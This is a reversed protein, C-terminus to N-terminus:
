QNYMITFHGYVDIYHFKGKWKEQAADDFPFILIDNKDVDTIEDVVLLDIDRMMFQLIGAYSPYTDYKYVIDADEKEEYLWAIKESLCYDRYAARKYVQLLNRDAWVALVIEMGLLVPLIERRKEKSRAFLMVTIVGFQLVTGFLYAETYFTMVDFDDARYLYSIGVVFCEQFLVTGARMIQKVILIVIFLHMVAIVGSAVWIIKARQNWLTILGAMMVFPLILESYRGYTYDSVAGMNMLYVSAIMIQAIVGMLIYASFKRKVLDEKKSFFMKLLGYIGWYFLGYTSLGLYWIKGLIGIFFDYAGATTFIYKIKEIQGSYDNGRVLEGNVGGYVCEYSWEKIALSLLLLMGITGVVLIIHHKRGQGSLMHFILVTIGSLLIGITRMHVAYAYMMTLLLLLLAGPRNNKLYQYFLAGSLIYLMTLVNETMTMQAYFLFGPFFITIASFLVINQKRDSWLRGAIWMLCFFSCILMGFNISVAARYATVADKCLMFVPVLILSYGYSFYMGLSTIDSWDYGAMAAAYSWYTYEDPFMVFGYANSVSYGAFCLLLVLTIFYERDCIRRKKEDFM